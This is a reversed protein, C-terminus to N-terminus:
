QQVWSQSPIHHLIPGEPYVLSGQPLDLWGGKGAQMRCQPEEQLNWIASWKAIIQNTWSKTVGLIATWWTGRDMSNELYYYQLPIGNREGPSGGLGPILGLDGANCASMKGDSSGPFSGQYSLQYLIQRLTQGPSNWPSHPTSDMPDCLTPCSQAVKM